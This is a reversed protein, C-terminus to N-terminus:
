WLKFIAIEKVYTSFSPGKKDRNNYKIFDIKYLHINYYCYMLLQEVTDSIKFM